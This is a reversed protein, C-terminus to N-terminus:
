KSVLGATSFPRHTEIDEVKILYARRSKPALGISLLRMRGFGYDERWSQGADFSDMVKHQERTLDRATVEGGGLLVDIQAPTLSGLFWDIPPQYRGGPDIARHARVFRQWEGRTLPASSIADSPRTFAPEGRRSPLPRARPWLVALAAIVVVAIAAAWWILRRGGPAREAPRAKM